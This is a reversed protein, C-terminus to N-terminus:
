GKLFRPLCRPEIIPDFSELDEIDIPTVIRSVMGHLSYPLRILRMGGSTVWEDIPSSDARLDKALKLREYYNMWFAEEDRVHIHFGRGSYVIRLLSFRDQLKSYLRITEAKASKLELRCFSLGQQRKMKHELTGHIPCTINEPDIDFALEQGIKGGRSDYLNRDYYVSEPKFELIQRKVDTLDRYEDILITTSADERYKAPYLKTHRGIVVAFIVRQKRGVFWESVRELNFEEQYFCEREGITSYRMGRPFRYRKLVSVRRILVQAHKFASYLLLHLVDGNFFSYMCVARFDANVSLASSTLGSCWPQLLM